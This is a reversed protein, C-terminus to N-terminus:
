RAAADARVKRISEQALKRLVDRDIDDLKRVYICSVNSRFKGLKQLLPRAEAPLGMYMVIEKGRVAFGLLPADGERGSDYVYHYSDFGVIGPGWMKPAKGTLEKFLKVLEQCDPLQAASAKNALFESVSAATPATKNTSKAATKSKKKTKAM